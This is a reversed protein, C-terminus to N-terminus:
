NVGNIYKDLRNMAKKLHEMSYAYSIRIFGEGNEGFANGPVVAVKQKNLFDTCFEESTPGIFLLHNMMMTAMELLNALTFCKSVM